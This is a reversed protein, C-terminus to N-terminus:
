DEGFLSAFPDTDGGPEERELPLRLLFVTGLGPESHLDIFGHHKHTVIDSVIALGQGTGKGPPKTTFDPEYVKPVMEPPIGHGNDRISVYAAKGAHCTEVVIRGPRTDGSSIRAEIAHSANVVLNTLAQNIELINCPLLPLTPDLRLELTSHQRWEGGTIVATTRIADNLDAPFHPASSPHALTRMSTVLDTIRSIGSSAHELAVPVEELIYGMDHEEILQELLEQKSANEEGCPSCRVSDRFSEYAKVVATLSQFSERLFDTTGGLFHVPTNIEHALRAAFRGLGAMKESHLLREHNERLQKLALRLALEDSVVAAFRVMLEVERAEMHRPELCIACLTGLKHGCSSRLPIGAYFRIYPAGVVLPSDCFRPDLRADSVVLPSDGLITHACFASDRSSETAELGFHSKFWQRERDVFSVLVIPVQLIEGVMQTIRDFAAETPSDLIDYELLARLRAAEDVPLPAPPM